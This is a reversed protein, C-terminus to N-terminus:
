YPYGPYPGQNGVGLNPLAESDYSGFNASKADFPYRSVMETELSEDVEWWSVSGRHESAVLRVKM